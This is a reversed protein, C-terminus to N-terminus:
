NEEPSAAPAAEPPGLSPFFVRVRTGVGPESEIMVDGGARRVRSAVLTLGLGLAAPRHTTFFPQFARLREEKSMGRGNDVVEVLAMWPQVILRLEIRREGGGVDACAQYANALLASITQALDARSLAVRLPSPPVDVLFTAAREIFGRMLGEIKWLEAALDCSGTSGEYTLASMKKVIQIAKRLAAGLDEATADIESTPPAALRLALTRRLEEAPPPMSQAAWRAVEDAARTVPGLAKSLMESNLSAVALPTRLEHAVAAVVLELAHEDGRAMEEFLRSERSARASARLRARAVAPALEEDVADARLVEDAGLALAREEAEADDVIVVLGERTLAAPSARLFTEVDLPLVLVALQEWVGTLAKAREEEAWLVIVVSM